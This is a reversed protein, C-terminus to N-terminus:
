ADTELLVELDVNKDRSIEYNAKIIKQIHGDEYTVVVTQNDVFEVDVVYWTGGLVPDSESISSINEEIYQKVLMQDDNFFLVPDIWQSLESESQVYGKINLNEGSLLSFHLHKREGDTEDSYGEGLIALTQGSIVEDGVSVKLSDLDIHGYVATYTEDIFEHYIVLVGGYGSAERAEVVKGPMISHVWIENDGEGEFIEADAGTHYGSFREPQVPSNEPTIYIGFPKVTVREPFKDIPYQFVGMERAISELDGSKQEGFDTITQSVCSSAMLMFSIVLLATFKIKM